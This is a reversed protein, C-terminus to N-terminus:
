SVWQSVSQSRNLPSSPQSHYWSSSSTAIAVPKTQNPKTQNLNRLKLKTSITINPQSKSTSTWALNSAPTQDTWKKRLSLPLCHDSELQSFPLSDTLSDTLWNSVLMALSRVRTRYFYGFIFATHLREVILQADHENDVRELASIMSEHCRNPHSLNM